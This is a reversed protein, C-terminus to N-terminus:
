KTKRIHVHSRINNIQPALKRKYKNKRRQEKMM